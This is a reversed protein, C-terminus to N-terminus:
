RCAGIWGCMSSLVFQMGFDAAAALGVVLALATEVTVSVVAAVAIILPSSITLLTLAAAGVGVIAFAVSWCSIQCVTCHWNALVDASATGRAVAQITPHVSRFYDNFGPFDENALPYGSNAFFSAPSSLLNGMVASDAMAAKLILETTVYQQPYLRAATLSWQEIASDDANWLVLFAGPKTSADQVSVALGTSANTIHGTGSDLSPLRWQQDPKGTYPWQCLLKGPKLDADVVSLYLQSKSNIIHFVGDGLDEFSWLQDLGNTSSWQVIKAGPTDSADQVGAVLGSKNNSIRYPGSATNTFKAM